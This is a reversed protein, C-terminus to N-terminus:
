SVKLSPLYKDLLRFGSSTSPLSLNMETCFEWLKYSRHLISLHSLESMRVLTIYDPSRDWECIPNSYLLRFACKEIFICGHLYSQKLTSELNWSIECEQPSRPFPNANKNFGLCPLFVSFLLKNKFLNHHNKFHCVMTVWNLIPKIIM